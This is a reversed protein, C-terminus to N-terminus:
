ERGAVRHLRLLEGLHHRDMKVERAARAASGYRNMLETVYWKEWTRVVREKAARFTTTPDFQQTDLWAPPIFEPLGDRAIRM